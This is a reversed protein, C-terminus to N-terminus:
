FVLHIKCKKRNKRNRDKYTHIVSVDDGITILIERENVSQEYRYRGSCVRYHILVLLRTCISLM